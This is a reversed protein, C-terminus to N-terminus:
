GRVVGDALEDALDTHLERVVRDVGVASMHKALGTQVLPELVLPRTRRTICAERVVM